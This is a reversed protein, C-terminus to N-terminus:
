GTGLSHLFGPAAAKAEVVELELHSFLEIPGVEM